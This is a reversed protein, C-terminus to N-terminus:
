LPRVPECIDIVFKGQPHTKPDDIYVEYCIRDDPQFGSSPLWEGMLADWAEGFQDPDIEFRAVAFKGGPVTMLNIDGSVETGPAVTVCANSRLKSEETTEPSDHYIALSKVGPANFLGRPGAWRALRDFAEPIGNFPGVHSAYAVTLEPLDKVEVKYTLKSMENRRRENLLMSFSYGDPADPDKGGKRESQGDKGIAQSGNSDALARRSERDMGRWESATVGFRERFARAFVSPSSFGVALAVETVSDGPHDSLRSAAQQLRVRKLFDSVTEGVVSSFVRHFHFRSFAASDAIDDLSLAEGYHAYLYAVAAFSGSPSGTLYTKSQPSSVVEQVPKTKM